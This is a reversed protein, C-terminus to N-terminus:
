TQIRAYVKAEGHSVEPGMFVGLETDESGAAPWLARADNNLELFNLYRHLDDLQSENVSFAIHASKAV